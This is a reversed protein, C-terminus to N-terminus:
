AAYGGGIVQNAGRAWAVNFASAGAVVIGAYILGVQQRDPKTLSGDPNPFLGAFAQSHSITSARKNRTDIAM